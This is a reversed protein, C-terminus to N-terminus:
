RHNAQSGRWGPISYLYRTAMARSTEVVVNEDVLCRHWAERAFPWVAVLRVLLRRVQLSVLAETLM